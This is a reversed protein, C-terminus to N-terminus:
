GKIIICGLAGPCFRRAQVVWGRLCWEFAAGVSGFRPATEDRSGGTGDPPVAGRARGGRRQAALLPAGIDDPVNMAKPRSFLNEVNYSGIIM